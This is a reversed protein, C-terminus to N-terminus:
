EKLKLDLHKKFEELTISNKMLGDFGLNNVECKLEAAIKDIERKRDASIFFDDHSKM